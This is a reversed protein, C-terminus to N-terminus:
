EEGIDKCDDCHGVWGGAVLCDLGGGFGGFYDGECGAHVVGGTGAFGGDEFLCERCAERGVHGVVFAVGQYM